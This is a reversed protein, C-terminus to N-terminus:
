APRRRCGCAELFACLCSQRPRPLRNHHGRAREIRLYPKVGACRFLLLAGGREPQRGISKRQWRAEIQILDARGGAVRRVQKTLGVAPDLLLDRQGFILAVLEVRGIQGEGAIRNGQRKPDGRDAGLQFGEVIDKGDIALIHFEHAFLAQGPRYGVAIDNDSFGLECGILRQLRSQLLSNLTAPCASATRM